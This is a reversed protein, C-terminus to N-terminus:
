GFKFFLKCFTCDPVHHGRKNLENIVDHGLQGNVGTILVKM